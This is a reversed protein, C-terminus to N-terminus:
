KQWQLFLVIIIRMNMLQARLDEQANNHQQLFASSLVRLNGAKDPWASVRVVGGKRQGHLIVM